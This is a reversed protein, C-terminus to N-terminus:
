NDKLIKVTFWSLPKLWKRLFTKKHWRTKSNLFWYSWKFYKLRKRERRFFIKGKCWFLIECFLFLNEALRQKMEFKIIFFSSLSFFLFWTTHLEVIKFGLFVCVILWTPKKWFRLKHDISCLANYLNISNSNLWFLITIIWM